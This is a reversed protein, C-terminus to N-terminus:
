SESDVSYIGIEISKQVGICLHRVLV